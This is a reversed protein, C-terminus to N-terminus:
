KINIVAKGRVQGDLLYRIAQAADALPFSRDVAPTVKGAEILDTLALLDVHNESNVFTRL